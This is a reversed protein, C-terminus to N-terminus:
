LCNSTFLVYNESVSNLMQRQKANKNVKREKRFYVCHTSFRCILAVSIYKEQCGM